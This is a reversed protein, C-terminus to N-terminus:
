WTFPKEDIGTPAWLTINKLYGTSFHCGFGIYGMVLDRHIFRINERADNLNFSFSRNLIDRRIVVVNWGETIGPAALSQVFELSGNHQYYLRISDRNVCFAYYNQPNRAAALFVFGSSDTNKHIINRFEFKLIFEGWIWESLMAKSGPYAKIVSDPSVTRLMNSPKGSVILWGASDEVALSKFLDPTSCAHSFYRAYGLPLEQAPLMSAFLTLALIFILIRRSVNNKILYVPLIYMAKLNKYVELFVIQIPIRVTNQLNIKGSQPLM